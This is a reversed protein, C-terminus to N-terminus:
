KREGKMRILLGALIKGQKRFELQYEGPPVPEFVVRGQDLMLSELERFYNRISIRIGRAPKQGRKEKVLLSVQWKNEEVEVVEVEAQYDGFVQFYRSTELQTKMLAIGRLSLAPRLESLGPVRTARRRIQEWFNNLRQFLGPKFLSKAKDLIKAPILSPPEERIELAIKMLEQCVPCDALHAKISEAEESSLLGDMLASLEALDPCGQQNINSPSKSAMFSETRLKKLIEKIKIDERDM